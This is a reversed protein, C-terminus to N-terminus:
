WVAYYDPQLSSVTLMLELELLSGRGLLSGFKMKRVGQRLVNNKNSRSKCNTSYISSSFGAILCAKAQTVRWLGSPWRAM